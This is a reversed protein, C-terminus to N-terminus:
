SRGCSCDAGGSCGGRHHRRRSTWWVVGASAILVALAPLWQGTIGWGVGSLAGAALLLPLACCAVCAAAALGALVTPLRRRTGAPNTLKSTM